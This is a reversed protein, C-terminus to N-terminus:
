QATPTAEAAPRVAPQPSGGGAATDVRAALADVRRDLAQLRAGAEAPDVRGSLDYAVAGFEFELELTAQADVARFADELAQFRERYTARLARAAALRDGADLARRAADIGEHVAVVGDALEM